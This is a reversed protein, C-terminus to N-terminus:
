IRILKVKNYKMNSSLRAPRLNRLQVVFYDYFLASFKEGGPDAVFVSHESRWPIRQFVIIVGYCSVNECTWCSKAPTFNCSFGTVHGVPPAEPLPNGSLCTNRSLLFAVEEVTTLVDQLLHYFGDRFSEVSLDLQFSIQFVVVKAARRQLSPFNEDRAPLNLPSNHLPLDLKIM